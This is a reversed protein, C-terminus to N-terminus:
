EPRFWVLSAGIKKKNVRGDAFLSRLRHDAAQRTLGVSDAVESTSAPENEAVADLIDTDSVSAQYQGESDRDTMDPQQSDM